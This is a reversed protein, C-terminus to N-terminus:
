GNWLREWTPVKLHRRTSKFATGSTDLSRMGNARRSSPCTSIEMTLSLATLDHHKIDKILRNGFENKLVELAIKVGAISRRGAIKRDGIYRAPIISHAAFVKALDRFRMREGEVVSDGIVDFKDLAKRLLIKARAESPALKRVNRRKGSADTYQFRYFWREETDQAVYGTRHRPM